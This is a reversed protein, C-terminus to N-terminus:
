GQIEQNPKLEKLKTKDFILDIFLVGNLHDVEHQLVRALLGGTNIQIKKGKIDKAIVKVKKSRIVPGFINPVSFCGEDMEVKEKSYKIIEPNILTTLPIKEYIINEEEDKTGKSEIIIIRLNKGVQPAALGLGPKSHLTDIMDNILQNIEPTVKDVPESTRRLKKNEQTIIDLISM